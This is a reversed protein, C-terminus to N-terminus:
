ETNRKHYFIIQANISMNTREADKLTFSSGQLIGSFAPGKGLDWEKRNKEKRYDLRHPNLTKWLQM